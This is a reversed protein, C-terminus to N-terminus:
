PLQANLTDFPEHSIAAWAGGEGVERIVEEYSMGRLDAVDPIMLVGRDDVHKEIVAQGLAITLVAALQDPETAFRAHTFVLVGDTLSRFRLAEPVDTSPVRLLAIADIGM